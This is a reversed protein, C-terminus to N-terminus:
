VHRRCNDQGSGEGGEFRDTSGSRVDPRLLPIFSCSSSYDRLGRKAGIRAHTHTPLSIDRM